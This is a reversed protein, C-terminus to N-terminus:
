ACGEIFGALAPWAAAGIDPNFFGFHGLPRGATGRVGLNIFERHANPFWDHWARAACETALWDQEIYYTRLPCRVATYYQPQPGVRTSRVYDPDRGWRAWQRAVGSPISRGLGFWSAPFRASLTTLLPIVAYWFALLKLREIGHWLRWYGSQCAVGVLGAVDLVRPTLGLIQGGVSHGLVVVRSADARAELWALAAPFDKLGWDELQVGPLRARDITSDGVGRYDYTLVGIGRGALYGALHRYFQRRVGMASNVLLWAAGSNGNDSASGTAAPAHITAQLPQGDAATLTVDETAVIDETGGPRGAFSAM